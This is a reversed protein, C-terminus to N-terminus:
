NKKRERGTSDRGATGSVAATAVCGLFKAVREAAKQLSNLTAGGGSDFDEPHFPISKELCVERLTEKLINGGCYYVEDPKSASVIKKLDPRGFHIKMYSSSQNAVSLLFLTQSLMYVPDTSSGLGTLYVEVEVVARKPPGKRTGTNAEVDHQPHILQNQSKVLHHVYDLYFRLESMDRITWVVKLLSGEDEDDDMVKDEALMPIEFQEDVKTQPVPITKEVSNQATAQRADDDEAMLLDMTQKNTPSRKKEAEVISNSSSMSRKVSIVASSLASSIPATKEKTDPSVTSALKWQQQFVQILSNKEVEHQSRQLTESFLQSYLVRDNEYSLEDSVKTAMLSFFPTIGIGSAVCLINSRPKRILAQSSPALFPGQVEVLTLPRARPDSLLKHLARTWDGSSGIFFSLHHSSTSGASSFPHWENVSLQPIKIRYYAGPYSLLHFRPVSLFSVGNACPRSHQLTTYITCQWLDYGRELVMLSFIALFYPFLNPVHLFLMPLYLIYLYHVWAFLKYYSSSWSRCLATFAMVMIFFLLIFGTKSDGKLKDEWNSGRLLSHQTFSSEFTNTVSKYYIHAFTHGLTHFSISFGIFSHIDINIGLPVLSRLYRIAYLQGMTTRAMSLYVLISLIRLNLGFGKAVCFPIPYDRTYHFMFYYVYLFIQLGVLVVKFTNVKSLTSVTHYTKKIYEVVPNAQSAQQLIALNGAMMQTISNRRTRGTTNNHNHHPVSQTLIRLIQACFISMAEEGRDSTKFLSLIDEYGISTKATQSESGALGLKQLMRDDSVKLYVKIEDFSISHNQDHDMFQVLLKVKASLDGHKMVSLCEILHERYIKPGGGETPSSGGGAEVDSTSYRLVRGLAEVFKSDLKSSFTLEDLTIYGRNNTDWAEFIDCALTIVEDTSLDTSSYRRVFISNRRSRPPADGISPSNTDQIPPHTLPCPPIPRELSPPGGRPPPGSSKVEEVVQSAIDFSSVDVPPEYSVLLGSSSKRSSSSSSAIDEAVLTQGELQAKDEEQPQQQDWDAPLMEYSQDHEKRQKESM